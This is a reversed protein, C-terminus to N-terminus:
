SSYSSHINLINTTQFNLPLDESNFNEKSSQM